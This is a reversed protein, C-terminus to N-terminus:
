RVMWAVFAAFSLLGPALLRFLGPWSHCDDPPASWGVWMCAAAWIWLTVLAAASVALPPFLGESVPWKIVPLFLLAAQPLMAIALVLLGDRFRQAHRESNATAPVFGSINPWFFGYWLGLLSILTGGLFAILVPVVTLERGLRDVAFGLGMAILVLLFALVFGLLRM